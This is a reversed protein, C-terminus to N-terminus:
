SQQEGRFKSHHALLCTNLVQQTSTVPSPSWCHAPHIAGEELGLTWQPFSYAALFAGKRVWSFTLHCLAGPFLLFYSLIPALPRHQPHPADPAQSTQPPWGGSLCRRLFNGRIPFLWDHSTCPLVGCASPVSLASAKPLSTPPLLTHLLQPPLPIRIRQWYRPPNQAPSSTVLNQLLHTRLFYKRLSHLLLCVSQPHPHSSRGPTVTAQDGPERSGRPLHGSRAGGGGGPRPHQAPPPPLLCPKSTVAGRPPDRPAPAAEADM